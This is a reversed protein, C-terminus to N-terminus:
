PAEDYKHLVVKEPGDPTARVKEYASFVEPTM